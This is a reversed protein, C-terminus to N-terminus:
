RRLEFSGVVERGAADRSLAGSLKEGDWRGSYYRM